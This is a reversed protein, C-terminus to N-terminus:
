DKPSSIAYKYCVKEVDLPFLSLCNIRFFTPFIMLCSTFNLYILCYRDNKRVKEAM